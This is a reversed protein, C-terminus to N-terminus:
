LATSGKCVRSVIKETGRGIEIQELHKKAQLQIMGTLAEM